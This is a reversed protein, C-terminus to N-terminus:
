LDPGKEGRNTGENKKVMPNVMGVARRNEDFTAHLYLLLASYKLHLLVYTNTNRIYPILKGVLGVRTTTSACDLFAGPALEAATM